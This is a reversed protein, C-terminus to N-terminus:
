KHLHNKPTRLSVECDSAFSVNFQLDRAVRRDRHRCINFRQAFRNNVLAVSNDASALLLVVEITRLHVDCKDYMIKIVPVTTTRM